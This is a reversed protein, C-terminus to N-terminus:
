NKNIPVKVIDETARERFGRDPDSILSSTVTGVGSRETPVRLRHSHSININVGINFM